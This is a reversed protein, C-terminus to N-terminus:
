KKSIINEANIGMKELIEDFNAICISGDFCLTTEIGGDDFMAYGLLKCFKKLAEPEIWIYLTIEGHHGLEYNPQWEVQKVNSEYEDCDANHIFKYIQLETM